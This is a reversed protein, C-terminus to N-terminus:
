NITHAGSRHPDSIIKCAMIGGGLGSTTSKLGLLGIRERHNDLSLFPFDYKHARAAIFILHKLNIYM